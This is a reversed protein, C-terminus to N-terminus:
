RREDEKREDDYGTQTHTHSFIVLGLAPAIAVVEEEKEGGRRRPTFGEKEEKLGDQKM